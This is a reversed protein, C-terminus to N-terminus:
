KPVRLVASLGTDTWYIWDKDNTLLYPQPHLAAAASNPEPAWVVRASGDGGITAAWIASDGATAWYVTTADVTVAYPQKQGSAITTAGGTRAYRVVTDAGANAVYVGREDAALGRPAAVPLHDRSALDTVSACSPLTCMRVFGSAPNSSAFYLTDGAVVISDIAGADRVLPTPSMGEGCGDLPCTVLGGNSAWYVNKADAAIASAGSNETVFPHAFGGDLRRNWVGGGMAQDTWYLFDGGAAVSEPVGGDSWAVAPNQLPCGADCVYVAHTDFDTWAVTDGAVVLGHPARSPALVSPQCQGRECALGLCSHGCTGCNFKNTDLNACPGDPSYVIVDVIPGSDVTGTPVAAHTDNKGTPDLACHLGLALSSGVVSAVVARGIRAMKAM